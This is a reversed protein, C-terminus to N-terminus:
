LLNPGESPPAEGGSRVVRQLRIPIVRSHATVEYFSTGPLVATISTYVQYLIYGM